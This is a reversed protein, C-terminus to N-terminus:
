LAHDAGSMNIYGMRTAGNYFEIFGTTPNYKMRIQSSADLDIFDNAKIRLAAISNVSTSLDIAVYHSGRDVYGFISGAQNTIGMRFRSSATGGGNLLIGTWAEFYGPGAQESRLQPTIYVGITTEGGDQGNGGVNVEVGHMPGQAASYEGNLHYAAFNGAWIPANGAERM